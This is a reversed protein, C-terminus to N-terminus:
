CTNCPFLFIVYCESLNNQNGETLPLCTLFETRTSLFRFAELKHGMWRKRIYKMLSEPLNTAHVELNTFASVSLFTYRSLFTYLPHYYHISFVHFPYHSLYVICSSSEDEEVRVLYVVNGGDDLICCVVSWNNAIAQTLYM